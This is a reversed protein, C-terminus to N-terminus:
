IEFSKFIWAIFRKLTIYVHNNTYYWLRVKLFMILVLCSTWIHCIVQRYFRDCKSSIYRSWSRTEGVARGWAHRKCTMTATTVHRCQQARACLRIRWVDRISSRSWNVTLLSVWKRSWLFPCTKNLPWTKHPNERKCLM